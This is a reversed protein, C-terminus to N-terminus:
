ASKQAAAAGGGSPRSCRLEPSNVNETKVTNRDGVITFGNLASTSRAAIAQGAFRSDGEIRDIGEASIKYTVKDSSQV